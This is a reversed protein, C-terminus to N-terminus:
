SQHHFTMWTCVYMPGYIGMESAANYASVRAWFGGTDKSQLHRSSSFLIMYGEISHSWVGPFM